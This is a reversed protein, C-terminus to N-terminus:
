SVVQGVGRIGGVSFDGGIEGERGGVDESWKKM